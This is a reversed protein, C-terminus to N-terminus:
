KLRGMPIDPLLHKVEDVMSESRELIAEIDSQINGLYEWEWNVEGEQDKLFVFNQGSIQLERGDRTRVILNPM